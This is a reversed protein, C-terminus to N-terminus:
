KAIQLVIALISLAMSSALLKPIKFIRIKAYMTEICALLIGVAIIKLVYFGLGLILSSPAFDVAIGWPFFLNVFMSFLITQKVLVAWQLIGWYRGSYELMMAEHLMTLELHTDPNDYPIRGTEAIVVILFAICSLWHGYDFLDWDLQILTRVVDGVNTTGVNLLVAIVALLLAPECIAAMVMERSSGMGGFASGADLATIALFFRMVAFLYVILIIDGTFALPAEIWVTPILAGVCLVVAFCIYPTARTLWSADKALVADKKLYKFIDRYPQVIDAGIRNQLRAKTKKIIGQVLPALVLLGVIQGLGFMFHEIM